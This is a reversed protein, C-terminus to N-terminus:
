GNQNVGKDITVVSVQGSDKNVKFKKKCYYCSLTEADIFLGGVYFIKKCYPCYRQERYNM